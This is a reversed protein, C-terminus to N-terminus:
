IMEVKISVDEEEVAPKHVQLQRKMNVTVTRETAVPETQEIIM